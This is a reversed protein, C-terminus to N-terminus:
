VCATSYQLQCKSNELVCATYLSQTHHTCACSTSIGLLHVQAAAADTVAFVAAAAATSCRLHHDHPQDAQRHTQAPQAIGKPVQVLIAEARSGCTVDESHYQALEIDLHGGRHACEGVRFRLGQIVVLLVNPEEKLLIGVLKTRHCVVNM